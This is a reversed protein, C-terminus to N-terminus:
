EDGPFPNANLRLNVEKDDVPAVVPEAGEVKNSLTTVDPRVLNIAMAISASVSLVLM